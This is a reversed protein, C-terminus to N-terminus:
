KKNLSTSNWWRQEAATFSLDSSAGGDRPTLKAQYTTKETFPSQQKNPDVGTELTDRVSPVTVLPVDNLTNQTPQPTVATAERVEDWHDAKALRHALFTETPTGFLMGTFHAPYDSTGIPEFYLVGSATIRVTGDTLKEFQREGTTTDALVREVEATFSTRTGSKIDSLPFPDKPSSHLSHYRRKGQPVPKKLDELYATRATDDLEVKLVMQFAHAPVHFMALHYAFLTTRGLLIFRHDASLPDTNPSM